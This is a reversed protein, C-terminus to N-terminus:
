ILQKIARGYGGIGAQLTVTGGHNRLLFIMVDYDCHSMYYSDYQM